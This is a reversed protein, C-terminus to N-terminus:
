GINKLDKEIEELKKILSEPAKEATEKAPVERSAELTLARLFEKIEEDSVAASPEPLGVRQGWAQMKALLEKLSRSGMVAERLSPMLRSKLIDLVKSEDLERMAEIHVKMNKIEETLLLANNYANYFEVAYKRYALARRAKGTLIPSDLGVGSKIDRIIEQKTKEYQDKLEIARKRYLEAVNSIGIELEILDEETLRRKFILLKV